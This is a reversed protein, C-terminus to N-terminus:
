RAERFASAPTRMHADTQVQLCCSALMQLCSPLPPHSTKPCEVEMSSVNKSPFLQKISAINGLMLALQEHMRVSAGRGGPEAGGRKAAGREDGLGSRKRKALEEPATRMASDLFGHELAVQEGRRGVPRRRHARQGPHQPRPQPRRPRLPRHPPPARASLFYFLPANLRSTPAAKMAETSSVHFCLGRLQMLRAPREAGGGEGGEGDEGARWMEVITRVHTKLEAFKTALGHADTQFVPEGWLAPNLTAFDEPSLGAVLVQDLLVDDSRNFKEAALTWFPSEPHKIVSDSQSDEGMQFRENFERQLKYIVNTLRPLGRNATWRSSGNRGAKEAGILVPFPANTPLPPTISGTPNGPIDHADRTEAHAVGVTSPAFGTEGTEDPLKEPVPMERLRQVLAEWSASAVNAKPNRRWVEDRLEKTQPKNQKPVWGSHTLPFTPEEMGPKLSRAARRRAEM